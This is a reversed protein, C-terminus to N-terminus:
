AGVIPLLESTAERAAALHQEVLDAAAVPDRVPERLRARRGRRPLDLAEM